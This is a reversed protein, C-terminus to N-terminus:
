MTSNILFIYTRAVQLKSNSGANLVSASCHTTSNRCRGERKPTGEPLPDDPLHRTSYLPTGRRVAVGRDEGRLAVGVTQSNRSIQTPTRLSEETADSGGKLWGDERGPRACCAPVPSVVRPTSYKVKAYSRRQSRARAAQRQRSLAQRTTSTGGTATAGVHSVFIVM